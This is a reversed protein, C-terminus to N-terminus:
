QDGHKPPERRTELRGTSFDTHGPTSETNEEGYILPYGSLSIVDGPNLVQQAVRVGNVYTGGTSNLDSLIYRGKAARLQAHTRSIRPDDLVIHNDQRRGINIVPLNLAVTQGNIIFFAQHPLGDPPDKQDTLLFAATQGIQSEHSVTEIVFNELSLSSDPALQLIPNAPFEIGAERASDILVRVLSDTLGPRLNWISLNSPHLHVIFQYPSIWVGSAEKVIAQEIARVLQHALADQKRGGPFFYLTSEIFSQLRGEIQDLRSRM